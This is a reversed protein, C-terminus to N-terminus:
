ELTAVAMAGVAVTPLSDCIVRWSAGRDDSATSSARTRARSSATPSRQTGSCRVVMNEDAGLGGAPGVHQRRRDLPRGAGGQPTRQERRGRRGTTTTGAVACDTHQPPAGAGRRHGALHRRRRRQPLPWPGHAAYVTCPLSPSAILKHVDPHAGQLHEWTDGGDRSRLIGGVEIGAYVVDPDAPSLCLARVHAHRGEWHFSWEDSGAGRPVGLVGGRRGATRTRYVTAPEGVYVRDPNSPARHRQPRPRHTARSRGGRLGATTAATYARRTPSSTRASRTRRRWPWRQRRTSWRRSRGRRGSSM